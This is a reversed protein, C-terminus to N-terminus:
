PCSVRVIGLGKLPVLVPSTTSRGWYQLYGAVDFTNLEPGAMQLMERLNRDSAEYFTLEICPDGAVARAIFRELGEKTEGRVYRGPRGLLKSPPFDRRIFQGPAVTADFDLHQTLWTERGPMWFLLHSVFVDSDGRNVVVASKETSASVLRVDERYWFSSRANAWLWTISSASILLLAAIGSIYQLLNRWPRQYSKCVSCISAGVPIEHKCAVCNTKAM